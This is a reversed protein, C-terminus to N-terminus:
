KESKKFSMNRELLHHLLVALGLGLLVGGLVDSVTHVGLGLRSAGALIPLLLFLWRARHRIHFIGFVAAVTATAAHGSPFSGDSTCYPHCATENDTCLTCPRTIDTTTKLFDVALFMILFSIALVLGYRAMREGWPRAWQHKVVRHHLVGGFILSVAILAWVVPDGTLTVLAWPNM